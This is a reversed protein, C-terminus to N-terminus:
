WFLDRVVQVIRGTYEDVLLADDGVRVWDYGPPPPPLDYAWWDTIVYEPGFWAYPLLEGFSWVHVYFHPPRRYPHAHYRRPSHFSRPYAGPRWQPRDDHRGDRYGDRDRDNWPGDQSRRDGEYVRRGDPYIIAPGGGGDYRRRDRPSQGEQTRRDLEYVRRGDPYITM